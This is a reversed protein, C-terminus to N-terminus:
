LIVPREPAPVDVELNGSVGGSIVVVDVGIIVVVAVLVVVVNRGSTIVEVVKAGSTALSSVEGPFVVSSISRLV